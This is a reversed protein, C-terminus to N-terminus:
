KKNKHWLSYRDITQVLVYHSLDVEAEYESSIFVADFAGKSLLKKNEEGVTVVHPMTLYQYYSATHLFPVVEPAQYILLSGADLSKTLEHIDQSRHSAYHDAVWSSFLCQYFQFGILVVFVGTMVWQPMKKHWLVELAKPLYLLAFVEGLFFYRYYEAGRLYAGYVLLAFGAAIYEVRTITEKRIIRVLLSLLWIGLLLAAYAPQPQIFFSLANHWM